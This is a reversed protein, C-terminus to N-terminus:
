ATRSRFDRYALVSIDMDLHYVKREINTADIYGKDPDIIPNQDKMNTGDSHCRMFGIGVFSQDGHIEDLWKQVSAITEPKIWDDSDLRMFWETHAYAVGSNLARPLGAHDMKQYFIEFGNDRAQWDRVIEETRDTSGDDTIIWEFEKCTQALLSEYAKGLIYGRNYAATHVTIKRM